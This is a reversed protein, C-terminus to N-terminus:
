FRNLMDNHCLGEGIEELASFNMKMQAIYSNIPFNPRGKYRLSEL